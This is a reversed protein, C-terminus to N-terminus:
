SNHSHSKPSFRVELDSQLQSKDDSVLGVGNRWCTKWSTQTDRILIPKRQKSETMTKLPPNPIPFKLLCGVMDELATPFSAFVCCHDWKVKLDECGLAKLLSNMSPIVLPAFLPCIYLWIYFEEFPEHVGSYDLSQNFNGVLVHSSISKKSNYEYGLFSPIDASRQVHKCKM